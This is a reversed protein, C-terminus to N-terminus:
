LNIKIMDKRYIEDFIVNNFWINPALTIKNKGLFSGWWGFSSNSIICYDSKSMLNLDALEDFNNYKINLNEPIYTKGLEYCDTVLHFEINPNQSLVYDISNKFYLPTVVSFFSNGLYDGTRVQITCINTKEKIDTFGFLDNLEPQFNETYKSKQFFGDLLIDSEQFQFSKEFYEENLIQSPIVDTIEIQKFNKHSHKRSKKSPYSSYQLSM